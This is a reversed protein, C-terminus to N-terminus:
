LSFYVEAEENEILSNNQNHTLGESTNGGDCNWNSSCCCCCCVYVACLIKITLIVILIITTLVVVNLWDIM